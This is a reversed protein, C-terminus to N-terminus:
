GDLIDLLSFKYKLLYIKCKLIAYVKTQARKIKDWENKMKWKVNWKVGRWNVKINIWIKIMSIEKTTYTDIYKYM